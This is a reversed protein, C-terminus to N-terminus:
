ARSIWIYLSVRFKLFSFAGNRKVGVVILFTKNQTIYLFNVISAICHAWGNWMGPDHTYDLFTTPLHPHTFTPIDCKNMPRGNWGDVLDISCLWRLSRQTMECNRHLQTVAFSELRSTSLGPLCASQCHPWGKQCDPFLATHSTMRMTSFLNLNAKLYLVSGWILAM